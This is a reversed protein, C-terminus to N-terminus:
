KKTEKQKIPEWGGGLAKILSVSAVLRRGLMDLAIREDGLATTQAVIVPLYDVIGNRYQNYTIAAAARAAKVAAAQAKAAEDLIQQVALNDEVERLGNLVAQRYNAVTEDYVAEAKTSQAHIAGTGLLPAAVNAGVVSRRISVGAFLSISPYAAAKAVGIQASAAAMRREAAAIDPRRELLDSPLTSPVAPVKEDIPAVAFSFDAPAKGILVAIAHELQARTVRADHMQAQAAGLQAQAQMIVGRSAVGVAHQNRTIQLSQEYSATTDRLLRIEADKVRLLFYNQALQAQLSLRAAALDAASAQATAGSAEINRRIRGWLDIEWNALLGFNKISGGVRTGLNTCCGLTPFQAARAADTLAQAQQVRAEMAQLSYNRSEVQVILENLQDDNYLAWWHEDTSVNRVQPATLESAEKYAAPVDMPPRVYDPGLVKCATNITAFFTLTLAHLISTRNM